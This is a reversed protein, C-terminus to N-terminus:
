QLWAPCSAKAKLPKRKAAPCSHGATPRRKAAPCSQGTTPIRFILQQQQAAPQRHLGVVSWAPPPITGLWRRWGKQRHAHLLQQRAAQAFYSASEPPLALTHEPRAPHVLAATPMSSKAHHWAAAPWRRSATNKAVPKTSTSALCLCLSETVNLNFLNLICLFLIEARYIMHGCSEWRYRVRDRRRLNDKCRNSRGEVM